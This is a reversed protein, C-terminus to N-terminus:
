RRWVGFNRLGFVLSFGGFVLFGAALLMGATDYAVTFMFAALLFFFVGSVLGTTANVPLRGTNAAVGRIM